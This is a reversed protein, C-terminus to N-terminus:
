RPLALSPSTKIVIDEAEITTLVKDSIDKEALKVIRSAQNATTTEFLNRIFSANGFNEGRHNFAESVVDGLQIRARESFEFHNKRVMGEFISTLQSPDYDEFHIYKNFRSELGPNSELFQKIKHTYGAVIVILDDRHDEMAKLLADIAEQGFSDDDRYKLTYAEDIFLVSGFSAQVVEQVKIATQGVYGAVLGARDTEILKGERLIGLEKYLAAILKAITTKGTGPNGTFVLHRSAGQLVSMGRDKRLREVKLSDLLKRVDQKVSDLGVMSNLEDLVKEVSRQDPPTAIEKKKPLGKSKNDSAADIAPKAPLFNQRLEALQAQEKRSVKGSAPGLGYDNPGETGKMCGLYILAWLQGVVPIFGIGLWWGSKNHDHLRKAGVAFSSWLMVLCGLVIQAAMLGKLQVVAASFEEIAKKNGGTLLAVAGMALVMLLMGCGLYDARGIRGEFSFLKAMLNGAFLIRLLLVILVLAVLGLGVALQSPLAKLWSVDLQPFKQPEQAPQESPAPKPSQLRPSPAQNITGPTKSPDFTQVQSRYKEPILQWQDTYVPTGNEEVYKYMVDAANTSAAVIWTALIWGVLVVARKGASHSPM